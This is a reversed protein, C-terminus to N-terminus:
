VRSDRPIVVNSHSVYDYDKKNDFFINIEGLRLGGWGAQNVIVEQNKRNKTIHPEELFTHTHGGLILQVHETEAALIKDSIQNTKYEFGLHSLCIIYDCRKKNKLYDAWINVAEIPDSYIVGKCLHDPVLGKVAIGVGVIGIKLGGRRIIVYPKVRNELETGELIYNCNVFPFDAYQMQHVLGEIGNDFDHNGLTAADYGLLSMVRMEPEGRFFNFYPTGQFIDGADLLLVQEREVRIKRILQERAIVGGQGAYAGGDNPFPDLRSHVDNTHLVTLQQKKDGAWSEIPYNGWGMALAALGSRKLFLRRSCNAESNEISLNRMEM